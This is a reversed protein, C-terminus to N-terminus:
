RSLVELAMGPDDSVIADVGADALRRVTPPDNATWGLVPAGFAHAARVAARSCLTHHLSLVDARAVRLLLPIRLPM